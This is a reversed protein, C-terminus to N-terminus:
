RLSREDVIEQRYTAHCSTCLSLTNQLHDLVEKQDHKKAALVIGDATKHFQIAKEAFGEAGAGMRQCMQGMEETYGMKTATTEIAKFDKSYLGAVIGQVSELHERMNQKQHLAMQPLLPVPIRKDLVELRDRPDATVMPDDARVVIVGFILIFVAVMMLRM